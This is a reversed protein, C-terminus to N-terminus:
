ISFTRDTSFSVVGCVCLDSVCVGGAHMYLLSGNGVDWYVKSHNIKSHHVDRKFSVCREKKKEKKKESGLCFMYTWRVHLGHGSEREWRQLASGLWM